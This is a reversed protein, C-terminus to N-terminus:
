ATSGLAQVATQVEDYPPETGPHDAVWQWSVTGQADIVFVCRNAVDYGEMGALSNLRVDYADTATRTYDSLIEYTLGMKQAFAANAFRSDVCIGLVTTGMDNYASMSDRFACLEQECVGTFAAPFFALVVPSGRYQSLSVLDGSTNYLSFDPATQGTEIPM